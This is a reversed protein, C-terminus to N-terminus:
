ETCNTCIHICRRNSFVERKFDLAKQSHLIEHFANKTAGSELINGYSHAANKDYCCPLVDGNTNIVVGSIVRWCRNKLAKKLNLTGKKYRSYRENEPMLSDSSYFQARKFTVRNVGLRKGLSTVQNQINETTSLLLCQLEVNLEAAVANTIGELVRNFDGGRRYKEYSKQDIGDLSVILKDLGAKKLADAREPTIFHGNTSISTIIGYKTAYEVMKHLEKNLFPEGQFYLNLYTLEPLMSNVAKKFKELSMSERQKSILGLGTPCQACRLNCYNAPEISATFPKGCEILRGRLASAVYGATVKAINWCRAFGQYSLVKLIM